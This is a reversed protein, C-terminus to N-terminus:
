CHEVSENDSGELDNGDKFLRFSSFLRSQPTRRRTTPSKSPSHDQPDSEEAEPPTTVISPTEGNEIDIWPGDNNNSSVKNSEHRRHSSSRDKSKKKKKKKSKKRRERSESDSETTLTAQVGDYYGFDDNREDEKGRFSLSKKLKDSYSGRRRSPRRDDQPKETYNCKKDRVDRPLEESSCVYINDKDHHYKRSPKRRPTEALGGEPEKPPNFLVIATAEPKPVDDIMSGEPELTFRIQEDDYVVLANQDAVPDQGQHHTPFSAPLAALVLKDHEPEVKSGEEIMDMEELAIEKGMMGLSRKAVPRSPRRRDSRHNRSSNGSSDYGDNRTRKGDSQRRRRGKPASRRRDGHRRVEDSRRRGMESQRRSEHVGRKEYRGGDDYKSYRPAAALNNGLALALADVDSRKQAKKDRKRKSCSGCDTCCLCWGARARCLCCLLCIVAGICVAAIIGWVWSPTGTPTVEGPASAKTGVSSNNNTEETNTNTSQVPPITPRLSPIPAVIPGGIDSLDLEGVSLQVSAFANADLSKLYMLLMNLKNRMAQLIFLRSMDSMDERGRVTVIVPLYLTEYLKRKNGGRLSSSQLRRTSSGTYEGPIENSILEWSDDLTEEILARIKSLIRARDSPSLIYDDVVNLLRFLIPNETEIRAVVPRPTPPPTVLLLGSGGPNNKCEYSTIHFCANYEENYCQSPSCGHWQWGGGNIGPTGPFGGQVKRGHHSAAAAAEASAAGGIRGFKALLLTFFPTVLFPSVM